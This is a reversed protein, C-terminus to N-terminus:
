LGPILGLDGANYASAKITQAVLSTGPEICDWDLYWPDVKNTNIFQSLNVHFPM